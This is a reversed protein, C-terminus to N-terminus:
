AHIKKQVRGRLSGFSVRWTKSRLGLSDAVDTQILTAESGNDVLAFTDIATKDTQLLLAFIFYCM